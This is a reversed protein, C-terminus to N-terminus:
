KATLIAVRWPLLWVTTERGSPTRCAAAKWNALGLAHSNPRVATPVNRGCCSAGMGPASATAAVLATMMRPVAATHAAPPAASFRM